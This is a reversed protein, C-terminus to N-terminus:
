KREKWKKYVHYKKWVWESLLCLSYCFGVFAAADGWSGVGILAWMSIVKAIAWKIVLPQADDTAFQNPM